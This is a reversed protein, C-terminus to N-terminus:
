RWVSRFLDQAPQQSVVHSDGGDRGTQWCPLHTINHPAPLSPPQRPCPLLHRSSQLRLRLLFSLIFWSRSSIQALSLAPHGGQSSCLPCGPSAPSMRPVCLPPCLGSATIGARFWRCLPPSVEASPWGPVTPFLRARPGWNCLSIGACTSVRTKRRTRTPTPRPAGWVASASAAGTRAKPISVRYGKIGAIGRGERPHPLHYKLPGRSYAGRGVDGHGRSPCGARLTRDGAPADRPAHCGNM